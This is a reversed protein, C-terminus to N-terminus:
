EVISPIKVDILVLLSIKFCFSPATDHIKAFVAALNLFVYFIAWFM